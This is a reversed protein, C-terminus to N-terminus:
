TTPASSSTRDLWRRVEDVLRSSAHGDPMPIVDDLMAQRQARRGPPDALASAIEALLSAEDHAVALAGSRTIPWWHEQRYFDKIQRRVRRDAGPVFTPGIQPRDFMAGDLTMSSCINVHVQSHALTSMQLRLDSETPWGRAPKTGAAWPDTVTGARLRSRLDAWPGPPDAPHRRVLLYPEGDVAGSALARDILEVLRVEGPVLRSPGAGYLVVPRDPPIGLRSRWEAEPEVLAADRHLDFQPAGIVAVDEARVEPYSRILEDANHGNWVLVRDGLVPVRARITPNDFSIITSLTPIGATRAAWMVLADQDHYPTASVVADIRHHQLFRDFQALNTGQETERAEDAELRDAGGPQTVQWWNRGRRLRHIAARRTLGRSVTRRYKIRTTPSALRRKHVIDLRERYIRYRHTIDADPLRVVEFGDGTLLADLEPDDWGLGVVPHCVTRLRNLIGTSWFYRVSFGYTIPVLVRPAHRSRDTDETM